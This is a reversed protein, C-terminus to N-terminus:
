LHGDIWIYKSVRKIAETRDKIEDIGWTKSHQYAFIKRFVGYTTEKEFCSDFLSYTFYDPKASKIIEIKDKFCKSGLSGNLSKNMITLNGLRGKNREYEETSLHSYCSFDDKWPMIHEITTEPSSIDFNGGGLKNAITSLMYTAQKFRKGSKPFFTTTIAVEFADSHKKVTQNIFQVYKKYADEIKKDHDVKLQECEQTSLGDPIILAPLNDHLIKNIRALDARITKSSNSIFYVIAFREIQKIFKKVKDKKNSIKNLALLTSHGNEFSIKSLGPHEKESARFQQAYNILGDLYAKIKEKSNFVNEQEAHARFHAFLKDKSVDEGKSMFIWDFFDIPKVLYNGKQNKLTDLFAEWKESLLPYDEKANKFIYSKILDDPSLAVGRDNLTEFIQFAADLDDTITVVFLLKEKLFNVFGDIDELTEYTDEILDYLTTAVNTINDCTKKNNYTAIPEHHHIDNYSSSNNEKVTYTIFDQFPTLISEAANVKFFSKTGESLSSKHEVVMTRLKKYSDEYVAKITETKNNDYSALFGERKRQLFNYLVSLLITITMIRQQGDVVDIYSNENVISKACLVLGGLFYQEANNQHARSIDNFLKEANEYTWVYERQYFPINFIKKDKLSPENTGFDLTFLKNVNYINSHFLM